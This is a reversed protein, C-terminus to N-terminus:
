GKAEVVAVLLCMDDHLEGRAHARAGAVIREKIAEASRCAPQSTMLQALGSAELFEHRGRGAESFGDTYVALADGPAIAVIEEVFRVGSFAGLVPGTSDLEEATDTALRHLLAPEHGCSVYTLANNGADFLGVFLTAFGALLDHEALVNNLDTVAEALTRGQYVAFRLMNRVTAVQSAAGLGKGSLDGVVLATCGKDISFVDFFDGGVSAEELAAQYYAALDLGPVRGPLAPTLADQLQTAIKRDRQLLRATNMTSHTQAAVAEVLTVEDPTWARPEDAMAVSLSAVFQKNEDFLPVTIGARVGLTELQSVLAQTAPHTRVEEVVMTAGSGYLAKVDIAFDSLRYNGALAPLDPRHWDDGISGRDHAFDYAAFYCRDARLANGLEEVAVRQVADPDLSARQAQAIRNALSEVRLRREREAGSRKEDTIDAFTIGLGDGIKVATIRFWGNLGEFADHQEFQETAGTEVVGVYRDFLGSPKVGPRRELLRKGHLEHSPHGAMREGAPNVYTYEFDAIFGDDARVSRYLIFGDPSAEQIARFREESLRLAHEAARRETVDSIVTLAGLPLNNEDRITASNTQAHVRTGDPREVVMEGLIKGTEGALARALGTREAPIPRNTEPDFLPYRNWDPPKVPQLPQGWIREAEPNAYDLTGDPTCTVVGVPATDVLAGLRARAAESESLSHSLRRKAIGTAELACVVIAGVVLFLVLNAQDSAYRITWTLRPEMLFYISALASLALTFFGQRAGWVAAVIAVILVYGAVFARVYNDDPTLAALFAQLASLGWTTAGVLLTAWLYGFLPKTWFPGATAVPFTKSPRTATMTASSEPVKYM